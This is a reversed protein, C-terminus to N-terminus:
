QMGTYTVNTGNSSAGQTVNLVANQFIQGDLSIQIQQSGIRSRDADYPNRIDYPLANIAAAAAANKAMEAAGIRARDAEMSAEPTLYYLSGYNQTPMQIGLIKRITELLADSLNNLAGSAYLSSLALKANAEDNNNITQLAKIRAKTEEDTANRAAAALNAAEPDFIQKLADMAQEAPSKKKLAKTNDILAKRQLDAIRKADAAIKKVEEDIKARQGPSEMSFQKKGRNALINLYPGVVPIMNLNLKPASLGLKKLEAALSGIGRIVDATTDAFAQMRRTISDVGNSDNLMNLSDILGYGITEQVNKSAVRLKDMSGAFTNVATKGQGKYLDILDSQVKEFTLTRQEAKSYVLGLSKLGRINGNWALSLTNAVEEIGLGRAKATDFAIGLLEQSKTVSGTAVLLKSFSPRLQDDLIGTAQEMKGIFQEVGVASMAFGVNKLQTALLAQAKADDAAAKVSAKGYAIVAATGFSVGIARGMAVVSKSLKQTATEAQAFAKKGTFEAAIAVFIKSIDSM